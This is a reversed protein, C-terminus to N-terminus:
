KLEFFNSKSVNEKIKFVSTQDDFRGVSRWSNKPSLIKFLTNFKKKVYFANTGSSDVAVLTFGKDNLLEDLALLSAGWYGNNKWVHKENYPMIKKNNNGLWHNYECCIVNVNELNMNKMVWYDNGDIDISFFDIIKKKDNQSILNNINEKNVLQNIVEVKSKPLFYKLLKKIAICEDRQMEILTGSWGKKILNLSNFENFTLGIEVFHKNNPIKSFIYEIIGDENNQSTFQYEFKNIEDLNSSFHKTNKNRFIKKKFPRYCHLFIIFEYIRNFSFKKSLKLLTNTIFKKSKKMNLAKIQLPLSLRIRVASGLSILGTCRGRGKV